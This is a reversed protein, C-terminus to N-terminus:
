EIGMILFGIIIGLGDATLDKWSFRNDPKQADNLEKGLGIMFGAGAGVYGAQRRDIDLGRMSLQGVLVTSMMGAVVHYGKDTSFWSDGAVKKSQDGKSFSKFYADLTAPKEQPEAGFCCFVM